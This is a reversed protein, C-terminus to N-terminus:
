AGPDTKTRRGRLRALWKGGYRAALTAEEMKLLFVAAVFVLLGTGIAAGVQLALGLTGHAAALGAAGAQVSWAAAAMAATALATQGAFKALGANLLGPLRRNLFWALMATNALSALSNALALGGHKLPGILLLSFALNIAVTVAMLKVPTRTDQQAYFARTLIINAAQGVLGVAYMSLAFATMATARPTFQGHEFLLKIVPTALVMLGIGAPLSFLIVMRGARVVTDALEQRQGRAALTTIAPYFATGVALVFFTIPMLIIRNAYNLASISGEALGSALIRDIILYIQNLSTGIAVPLVLHLVQRVGPHRLDISFRFRFGVQRLKPLQMLAALVFGLVTGAALGDIGYVSGLTLAAAIITLNTVSVSLAPIGFVQNANLLGQFVTSLGYFVLIPLMIVTLRTALGAVEASLGPATLKVLLPAAWVGVLTFLSFVIVVLTIVTNFLRWAEERRGQAAYESFVPVVVTALAGIIIAFVANPINYAVVYADTVGTAGFMYAIVQERVFGLIRSLLNIVAIVLTARAIVKGTSM